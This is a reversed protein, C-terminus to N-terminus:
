STVHHLGQVRRAFFFHWRRTHIRREKRHRKHKPRHWRSHRPSICQCCATLSPNALTGVSEFVASPGDLSFTSCRNLRPTYLQSKSTERQQSATSAKASLHPSCALMSIGAQCPHTHICRPNGSWMSTCSTLIRHESCGTTGLSMITQFKPNEWSEYIWKVAINIMSKKFTHLLIDHTNVTALVIKPTWWGSVFGFSCVWCKRPQIGTESTFVVNSWQKGPFDGSM